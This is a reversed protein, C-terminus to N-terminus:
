FRAISYFRPMAFGSSESSSQSTISGSNGGSGALGLPPRGLTDLRAARVPMIKTSLVPSGQDYKGGSIPQPLPTVHQRLSRSQCCAPTHSFNCWTSNSLSPSPPLISQDRAETSEALTAALFPPLTAPRVGCILAFRTRLAMKHDVGFSNRERYDACGGVHVVGIGEGIYHISDFRDPFVVTSSRAPTARELQMGVFPVIVWSAPSCQPLSTDSRPYGPAVHLAAFLQALVSPHNLARESPQALESSQHGAVFTPQVHVLSKQM